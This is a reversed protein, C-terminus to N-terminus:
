ADGGEDPHGDDIDEPQPEPRDLTPSWELGHADVDLIEEVTCNCHPHLPPYKVVGYHPDDSLIAFPRGLRVIPARRAITKCLPCADASLLWRWGAVVGSGIATREQAAHVTRSTETQAIRRARWTEAGDFIANIRKTLAAVSEGRAVVGEQLEARVARVAADISLSTTDLTAQCFALAQEQLVAEANADVVSWADADLGVRPAFAAAASEWFYSLVPTMRESMNLAGLRFADWGPFGSFDLPGQPEVKTELPPGGKTGGARAWALVARRQVRAAKVLEKRLPEGTPLRFTNAEAKRRPIDRPIDRAKRLLAM